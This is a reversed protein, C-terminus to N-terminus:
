TAFSASACELRSQSSCPFLYGRRPPEFGDKIALLELHAGKKIQYNPFYTM